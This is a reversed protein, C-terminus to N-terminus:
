AAIKVTRSPAVPVHFQKTPKGTVKFETSKQFKKLEGTDLRIDYLDEGDVACRGIIEGPNSVGIFNMDVRTLLDYMSTRGNLRM